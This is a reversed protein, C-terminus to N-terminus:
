YEARQFPVKEYTWGMRIMEAVVDEFKYGHKGTARRVDAVAQAWDSRFNVSGVLRRFRCLVQHGLEESDSVLVLEDM